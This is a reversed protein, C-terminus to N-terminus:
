MEGLLILEDNDRKTRAWKRLLEDSPYRIGSCRGYSSQSGRVNGVRGCIGAIRNRTDSKGVAGGAHHTAKVRMKEPV